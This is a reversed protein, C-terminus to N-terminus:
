EWVINLVLYINDLITNTDRGNSRIKLLLKLNVAFQSEPVSRRM